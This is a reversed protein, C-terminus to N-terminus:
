FIGSYNKYSHQDNPFMFLRALLLLKPLVFLWSRHARNSLMRLRIGCVITNAFCCYDSLIENFILSFMIFYSRVSSQLIQSNPIIRDIGALSCSCCILLKQMGFGFELLLVWSGIRQNSFDCDCVRLLLLELRASASLFFLFYFKAPLRCIPNRTCDSGM